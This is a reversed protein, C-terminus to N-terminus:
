VYLQILATATSHNPRFGHHNPHWLQNENFHAFTQEFIAAEAIKSVFVIDSVPRYNEGNIKEGKKFHPNIKSSKWLQPYLSKEISLNVLHILIDEIIPSALKISYGDIFDIGSSRNGKLKKMIKRFNEKTVPKLSFENIQDERHELWNRLRDKPEVKAHDSVKAVLNKVKNIFIINFINAIDRPTSYTRNEYSLLSPTNSHSKKSTNLYDNVSNWVSGVSAEKNYFKTRFYEKEELGLRRKIENRVKKYEILKELDNEEIAEKKLNDRRKIEDSLEKSMWPVYNNRVQYIRLPAHKNLISGFTGSFIAAAEDPCRSNLVREFNGCQKSSVVDNLFAVPDFHKYNRKKITKPMVKVERSYKTVMVAMHDSDGGASIEPVSCKEPVNTIVHDLCSKQVQNGYKQIRTNSNVLQHCSESHLFGHIQAALDKDKYNHNNWSLACLNGDGLSVFNKGSAVLETWQAIHHSHRELQSAKSDLGSVGGTWERYYYNIVTKTARGLGIELSISPLDDHSNVLQVQKCKLDNSVFVLIRAIGHTNWTPPFELSYGEIKLMSEVEATTFKKHNSTHKPSFIDTEILGLTHPKKNQIFLKVDQFKSTGGDSNILGRGCNWLALKYGLRRRNGSIIHQLKNAMKGHCPWNFSNHGINGLQDTNTGVGSKLKLKVIDIQEVGLRNLGRQEVEMGYLGKREVGLMASGFPGQSLPSLMLFISIVLQMMTKRFNFRHFKKKTKIKRKSYKNLDFIGITIRYQNLSVTM